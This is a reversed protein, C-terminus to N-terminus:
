FPIDDNNLQIKRIQNEHERRIIGILCIYFKNILEITDNASIVYGEILQKDSYESNNVHLTIEYKNMM